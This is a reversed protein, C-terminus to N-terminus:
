SESNVVGGLLNGDGLVVTIPKGVQYKFAVSALEFVCRQVSFYLQLQVDTIAFYM